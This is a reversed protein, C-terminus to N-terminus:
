RLRMTSPDFTVEVDRWRDYKDAPLDYGSAGCRLIARRASQFAARAQEDSGGTAGVLRIDGEIRGEQSLSFGVTVTVRTWEAGVDVNWCRAISRRFADEEAGTMPPGSPVPASATEEAVADAVASAVDSANSTEPQDTPPAPRAPRARPLITTEPAGSPTEAETVIETTAEEPATAEVPEANTEAEATESPEASEQVSDDILADEPPASIPEPAIRPAERPTPADSPPLDPASPPQFDPLQPITDAVEVDEDLPMLPAPPPAEEVPVEVVEPETLTVNEDSVEPAVPPADEVAPDIALSPTDTVADPTTARVIAEFEEGSVVSIETVEFPLPDHQLGWGVILWLLLAAHM